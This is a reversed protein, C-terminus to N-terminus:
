SARPWRGIKRCHVRRRMTWLDRQHELRVLALEVAPMRHLRELVATMDKLNRCDMRIAPMGLNCGAAPGGAAAAAVVVAFRQICASDRPVAAVAAFDRAIKGLYALRSSVAEVVVGTELGFQRNHVIVFRTREFSGM